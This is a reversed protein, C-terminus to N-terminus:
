SKSPSLRDTARMRQVCRFTMFLLFVWGFLQFLAFLVWAGISLPAMIVLFSVLFSMGCIFMSRGFAIRNLARRQIIVCTILVVIGIMWLIDIVM